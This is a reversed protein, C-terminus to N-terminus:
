HLPCSSRTLYAGGRSPPVPALLAPVIPTRPITAQGCQSYITAERTKSLDFSKEQELLHSILSRAPGRQRSPTAADSLFRRHRHLYRDVDAARKRVTDHLVLVADLEILRRGCRVIRDPAHQVRDPLRRFRTVLREVSVESPDLADDM